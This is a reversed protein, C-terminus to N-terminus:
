NLSGPLRPGTALLAPRISPLLSSHLSSLIASSCPLACSLLVTLPLQAHCLTIARTSLISPHRKQSVFSYNYYHYHYYLLIFFIKNEKQETQLKTNFEKSTRISNRHIAANRGEVVRAMKGDLVVLLPTTPLSIRHLHDGEEKGIRFLGMSRGPVM